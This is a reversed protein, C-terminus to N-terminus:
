VYFIIFLFLELVHLIRFVLFNRVDDSLSDRGDRSGDRRKKKKIVNQLSANVLDLRQQNLQLAEARKQTADYKNLLQKLKLILELQV